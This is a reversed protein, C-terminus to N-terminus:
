VRQHLDADVSDSLLDEIESQINNKESLKNKAVTVMEQSPDLGIIKESFNSWVETSIGTGCGLDLVLNAKPKNLYNLTQHIIEIPPNPRYKDYLNVYEEGTFRDANLKLKM